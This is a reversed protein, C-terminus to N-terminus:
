KVFDRRNLDRRISEKLDDSRLLRDDIAQKLVRRLNGVTYRRIFNNRIREIIHDKVIRIKEFSLESLDCHTEILSEVPTNGPSAVFTIHSERLSREEM